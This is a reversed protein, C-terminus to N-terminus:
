GLKFLQFIMFIIFGIIGIVIIGVATIKSSLKFEEKDPKTAVMLVRKCQHIFATIRQIM